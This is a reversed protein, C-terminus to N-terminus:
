SVSIFVPKMETWEVKSLERENYIGSDPYNVESIIITNDPFVAEVYALHGIDTNFMYEMISGVRPMVGVHVGTTGKLITHWLGPVRPRTAPWNIRLGKKWLRFLVYEGAQLSFESRGLGFVDGLISRVHATNSHDVLNEEGIVFEPYVRIARDALDDRLVWGELTNWAVKFFRGRSELVIIMEGYPVTGIQADFEITPNAYVPVAITGAYMITNKGIGTPVYSDTKLIQEVTKFTEKEPSEAEVPAEPTIVSQTTAVPEQLPKADFPEETPIEITARIFARIGRATMQIISYYITDLTSLFLSMRYIYVIGNRTVALTKVLLRTEM